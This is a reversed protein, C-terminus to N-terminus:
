HMPMTLSSYEALWTPLSRLPSVSPMYYSCSCIQDLCRRRPSTIYLGDTGWFIPKWASPEPRRVFHLVRPAPRETSISSCRSAPPDGWRLVHKDDGGLDGMWPSRGTTSSTEICAPCEVDFGIGRVNAWIRNCRWAHRRRDRYISVVKEFKLNIVKGDMLWGERGASPTQSLGKEMRMIQPRPDEIHSRGGRGGCLVSTLCIQAARRLGDGLLLLPALILSFAQTRHIRQLNLRWSCKPVYGIRQRRKWVRYKPLDSAWITAYIRNRQENRKCICRQLEIDGFTM